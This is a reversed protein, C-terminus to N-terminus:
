TIWLDSKRVDRRVTKGGDYLMVNVWGAVGTEDPYSWHQGRYPGSAVVGSTGLYHDREADGRTTGSESAFGTDLEGGSPCYEGMNRSQQPAENGLQFNRM